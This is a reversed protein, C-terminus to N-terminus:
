GSAKTDLIPLEGKQQAEEVLKNYIAVKDEYEQVLDVEARKGPKADSGGFAKVAAYYVDALANCV